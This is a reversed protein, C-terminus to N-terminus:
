ECGALPAECGLSDDSVTGCEPFPADPDEGGSFLYNFTNVADSLDIKGDDNVDAAERCPLDENGQFLWNLITM